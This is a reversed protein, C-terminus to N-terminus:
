IHLCCIYMTETYARRLSAFYICNTKRDTLVFVYNDSCVRVKIVTSIPTVKIAVLLLVLYLITTIIIAITIALIRTIITVLSDIIITIILIIVKM